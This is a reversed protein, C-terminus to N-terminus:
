MDRDAPPGAAWLGGEPLLRRVRERAHFEFGVVYEMAVDASGSADASPAFEFATAIAAVADDLADHGSSRVVRPDHVSGDASLRFRVTAVGAVSPDLQAVSPQLTRVVERSDSLLHLHAAPERGDREVVYPDVLTICHEPDYVMQWPASGASIAEFCAGGLQDKVGSWMWMWTGGIGVVCVAIVALITARGSNRHQRM